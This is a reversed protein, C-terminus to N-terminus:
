NSPRCTSIRPGINTYGCLCVNSYMSHENAWGLCSMLHFQGCVRGFRSLVLWFLDLWSSDEFEVWLELVKAVAMPLPARAAAVIVVVIVVIAVWWSLECTPLSLSHSLLHDGLERQLFLVLLSAATLQARLNLKTRYRKALARAAQM